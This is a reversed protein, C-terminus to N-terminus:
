ADWRGVERAIAESLRAAAERDFLYTAVCSNERVAVTLGKPTRTVSVHNGLGGEMFVNGFSM